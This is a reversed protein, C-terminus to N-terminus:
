LEGVATLEGRLKNVLMKDCCWYYGCNNEFLSENDRDGLNSNGTRKHRQRIQATHGAQHREREAPPPATLIGTLVTM